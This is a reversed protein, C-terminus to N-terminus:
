PQSSITENHDSNINFINNTLFNYSSYNHIGDVRLQCRDLLGGYLFSGDRGALDFSSRIITTKSYNKFALFCDSRIHETSDSCVSSTPEDKHYIAGGYFSAHNHSTNLTSNENLTLSSAELWMAGGNQACNSTFAIDTGLTIRTDIAHLRGGNAYARNSYLLTDGNLSLTGDNSYVAGGHIEAVNYALLARGELNVKSNNFCLGGGFRGSNKTINITGSFTINAFHAHIGGGSGGVNGTIITIGTFIISSLRPASICWHISQHMDSCSIMIFLDRADASVPPNLTCVASGLNGLATINALTVYQSRQVYVAGGCEGTNNIFSGSILTDNSHHIAVAGGYSQASNDVFLIDKLSMFFSKRTYLAGGFSAAKNGIFKTGIITVNSSGEASVAGGNDMAKNGIFKSGIIKISSYDASVAGGGVMAKNGIFKSGIIKVNSSYDASVAGGRVMAKNGIFKSGIIKVNSSDDVSVAGGNDMAKNGIFKSGIITVNSSYDASVAGGNIAKNGIFKSGIITVNSSYDASVAGGNIAKNGIFKSGIITVNNSNDAAVVGGNGILILETNGIRIVTNWNISNAGDDDDTTNSGNFTCAIIEINDSSSLSVTAKSDNRHYGHGQFICLIIKIDNSSTINLIMSTNSSHLLFALGKITVNSAAYFLLISNSRINVLTENGEGRLTLDSVNALHVDSELSHNGAMFMFTSGSTIYTGAQQAYQEITLCPRGPCSPFSDNPLVYHLHASASCVSLLAVLLETPRMILHATSQHLFYHANKYDKPVLKACRSYDWETLSLCACVCVSFNQPTPLNNVRRPCTFTFKCYVCLQAYRYCHM